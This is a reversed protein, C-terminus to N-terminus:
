ISLLDADINLHEIAQRCRNKNYGTRMGSDRKSSWFVTDKSIWLDQVKQYEAAAFIYVDNGPLLFELVFRGGLIEAGSSYVDCYPRVVEGSRDSISFSSDVVVKLGEGPIKDGSEPLM